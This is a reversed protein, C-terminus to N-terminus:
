RVWYYGIIMTILIFNDHNYDSIYFDLLGILTCYSLSYCPSSGQRLDLNIGLAWVELVGCRQPSFSEGWFQRVVGGGSVCIQFISFFCLARNIM